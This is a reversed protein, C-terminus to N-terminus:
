LESSPSNKRHLSETMGVNVLHTEILRMVSSHVSSSFSANLVIPLVIPPMHDKRPVPDIALLGDVAGAPEIPLDRVPEIVRELADAPVIQVVAAWETLRQRPVAVKECQELVEPPVDFEKHQLIQDGVVVGRHPEKHREIVEISWRHWPIAVSRSLSISIAARRLFAHCFLGVDLGKAADIELQGVRVAAEAARVPTQSGVEEM